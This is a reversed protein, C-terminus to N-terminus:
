KVYIFVGNVLQSNRDVGVQTTNNIRHIELLFKEGNSAYEGIKRKQGSLCIQIYTFNSHFVSAIIDAEVLPDKLSWIVLM